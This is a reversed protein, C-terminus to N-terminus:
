TTLLEPLLGSKTGTIKAKTDPFYGGETRAEVSGDEAVSVPYPLLHSKMDQVQDSCFVKWNEEAIENVRRVCEVSAPYRFVDEMKAMITAWCHLRYGHIDGHAISEKTALHAPQWSGLVIESDRAGDLSRQNINASGILAVADDVITMKSHVYILHRRTKSLVEEDTKPNPAQTSTDGEPTERNAVTYFNLYDQPHADPVAMGSKEASKKRRKLAAAIRTYMSEMTLTQFRLIAQVAGSTPIGEPWMPVLIYAAFPENAEIKQCIKLTLEAAILNGCKTKSSSGWMHSSSLFYQSEIYVSHEARRIHYVIGAHVSEDINRGKKLTLDRDFHFTSIDSTVFRRHFEGQQGRFKESLSHRLTRKSGGRQLVPVFHVGEIDDV